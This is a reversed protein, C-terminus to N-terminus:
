LHLKDHLYTRYLGVGLHQSLYACGGNCMVPATLYSHGGYVLGCERVASNSSTGPLRYTAKDCANIAM